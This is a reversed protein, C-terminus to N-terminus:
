LDGGIIKLFKQPAIASLGFRDIGKFDSLNFTVIYKCGGAVALVLVMDDNPDRLFTRWLFFVEQLQGRRCLYDIFREIREANVGLTKTLRKAAAEYELVLPVSLYYDFNSEPISSM